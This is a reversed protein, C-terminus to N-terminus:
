NGSTQGNGRFVTVQNREVVVKVQHSSYQKGPGGACGNITMTQTDTETCSQYPDRYPLM